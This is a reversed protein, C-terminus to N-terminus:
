NMAVSNQQRVVQNIKQVYAPDEAYNRKLFDLYVKEINFCYSQWLKYDKIGDQWTAFVAYSPYKSYARLDERKGIIIKDMSPIYIGIATTPRKFPYRMGLMNNTKKLLYSNLRNSEIKIQAFVQDPCLISDARIEAEVNELTLPKPPVIAVSAVVKEKRPLQLSNNYSKPPFLIFLILFSVSFISKFSKGFQLKSTGLYNSCCNNNCIIKGDYRYFKKSNCCRTEM